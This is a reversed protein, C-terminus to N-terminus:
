FAQGVAFHFQFREWWRRAPLAFDSDALILQGTPERVLEGDEGVVVVYDAVFLPGRELPYPNYAMDLRIPGVPTVLRLGMGPTVRIPQRGLDRGPAWVQGADVFAGIRVFESLVPSPLRLELSAVVMQTGGTASSRVALTDTVLPQDLTDPEWAHAPAVHVIPGLLNRGYGRVSNPGGAYFRQEPPIFAAPQALTAPPIMGGHLRAALIWGPRIPQYGIGEFVLRLYQDDSALLPSAWTTSGRLQFGRTFFGEPQTRDYVTSLALANSWRPLQLPEIDEPRCVDFGLCYVAPDARTFGREVNLTTTLFMHWGVDRSIAIQGGQAQRLFAQLESFREARLSVGLQNRTGFLQPQEFNAAIRYNVIDRFEDGALAWCLNNELGWATPRGVGIRSVSGSLDLRRAGGLFNRNLWRAETRFCDVTGWGASADVLYQPAEVVRAVVSALATDPDIHMTDPGIEVSAFNVMGLGYLNRQSRNLETVRLVSNERFTLARRVTREDLRDLGVFHVTDVRVLPGPIAIYHAEAIDAITDIAYNRLVDAYAYGRRLLAGRITDASALFDGRRFPEGERLPLTRQVEEPPIINETGEVLLEQLLVLDGPIVAFRVAIRGQPLPDVSPIARTGYYGHDRYYLQLRAVDRGLEPLDLFYRDRGFICLRLPVFPLRCQTPRTVITASLSDEPLRLDGAFRVERVERGAFEAFQPFPGVAVGQPACAGLVLAAFLLAALM